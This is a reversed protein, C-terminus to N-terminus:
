MPWPRPRPKRWTGISPLTFRTELNRQPRGACRSSNVVAQEGGSSGALYRQYEAELGASGVTNDLSGESVYGIINGMVSGYPYDREAVAQVRLYPLQALNEDILTVQQDTLNALIPVPDYPSLVKSEQQIQDMITAKSVGILNALRNVESAPMPTEPNLDYLTWSPESTAIVTGGAAVIKGRAAPIPVTRLYDDRSEAAYLHGHAIQLNWLRVGVIAFTIAVGAVLALARREYTQLQDCGKHQEFSQGFALDAAKWEAGSGRRFKADVALPRPGVEM